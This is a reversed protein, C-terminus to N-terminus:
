VIKNDIQSTERAITEYRQTLGSVELEISEIARSMREIDQATKHTTVESSHSSTRNISPVRTTNEKATAKQALKAKFVQFQSSLQGLGTAMQTYSKFRVGMDKILRDIRSGIELDM